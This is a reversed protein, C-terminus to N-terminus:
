MSQPGAPLLPGGRPRSAEGQDRKRAQEQFGATAAIARACDACAALHPELDAREAPSLGGDLYIALLEPVPCPSTM